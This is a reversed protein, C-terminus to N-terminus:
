ITRMTYVHDLVIIIESVTNPSSRGRRLTPSVNHRPTTPMNTSRTSSSAVQIAVLLRLTSYIVCEECVVDMSGASRGHMDEDDVLIAGPPTPPRQSTSALFNNTIDM